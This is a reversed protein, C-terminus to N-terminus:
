RKIGYISIRPQDYRRSPSKIIIPEVPASDEARVHKKPLKVPRGHRPKLKM